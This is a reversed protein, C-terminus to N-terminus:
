ACFLLLGSICSTQSMAGVEKLTQQIVTAKEAEWKLGWFQKGAKMAEIGDVGKSPDSQGGFEGVERRIGRQHLLSWLLPRCNRKFPFLFAYCTVM